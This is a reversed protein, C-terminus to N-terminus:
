LRKRLETSSVDLRFNEEPIISFLEEYDAIKIDGLGKYKGDIKRGTVLFSCENKYINLFSKHMARKYYKKDVIRVATDY